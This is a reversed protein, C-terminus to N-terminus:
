WGKTLDWLKKWEAIHNPPVGIFGALGNIGIFGTRIRSQIEPPLFTPRERSARFVSQM